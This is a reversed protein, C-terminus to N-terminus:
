YILTDGRNLNTAAFFKKCFLKLFVNYRVCGYFVQKIFVKEYPDKVTQLFDAAHSDVTHCVPNYAKICEVACDIIEVFKM